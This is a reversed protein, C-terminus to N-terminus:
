SQCSPTESPPLDTWGIPFGQLFEVFLPNLRRCKPSCEHGPTSTTPAQLGSSGAMGPLTYGHTVGHSPANHTGGIEKLSARPTPWLKAKGVLTPNGEGRFMTLSTREADAKQPTPWMVAAAQIDGRDQERPLGMKDAAGKPTPWMAAEDNLNRGGHKTGFRGVRDPNGPTKDHMQPTPWMTAESTLDRGGKGQKAWDYRGGQGQVQPTPWLSSGNGGTPRASTRPESVSGNHM